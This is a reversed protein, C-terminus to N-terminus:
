IGNECGEITLWGECNINLWGEGIIIGGRWGKGGDGGGGNICGAGEVGHEGVCGHEPVGEWLEWDGGGAVGGGVRRLIWGGVDVVVRSYPKSRFSCPLRVGLEVVVLLNGVEGERPCNSCRCVEFSSM